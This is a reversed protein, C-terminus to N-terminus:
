LTVIFCDPYKAVVAEKAKEAEARTAYTGYLIKYSVNGDREVALLFLNAKVSADFDAMRALLNGVGNFSAIQVAFGTASHRMVQVAYLDAKQQVEVPAPTSPQATPATSTTPTAVPQQSEELKKAMSVPKSDLERTMPRYETIGRDADSKAVDVSKKETGSASPTQATVAAPPQEATIELRVKVVGATIMDLAEAAAKSVDVIRNPSFPGRDNVRVVVTKGNSLNTVKLNTGYPLTMHACTFLTKDYREGSATSRGHFKDAYFSCQGEQSFPKQQACVMAFSLLPFLLTLIVTKNM